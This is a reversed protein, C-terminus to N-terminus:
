LINKKLFKADTTSGTEKKRKITQLQFEQMLLSLETAAAQKPCYVALRFDSPM